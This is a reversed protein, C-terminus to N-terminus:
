PMNWQVSGKIHQTGLCNAHKSDYVLTITIHSNSHSCYSLSVEQTRFQISQIQYQPAGREKEIITISSGGILLLSDIPSYGNTNVFYKLSRGIYIRKAKKLITSVSTRSFNFRFFSLNFIVTKLSKFLQSELKWYLVIINVEKFM